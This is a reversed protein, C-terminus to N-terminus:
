EQGTNAAAELKSSARLKEIEEKPVREYKALDCLLLPIQVEGGVIFGEGQNFEKVVNARFYPTSKESLPSPYEICFIRVIKGDPGKFYDEKMSEILYDDMTINRGM